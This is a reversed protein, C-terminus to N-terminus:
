GLRVSVARWREGDHEFRAALARVGGDLLVTVAVEACGARPHCLRIRGFRAPTRVHRRQAAVRWYRLVAPDAHRALHAPPRRGDLVECAIRLVGTIAARAGPEEDPARPTPPPRSLVARPTIPPGGARGPEPEYCLRRLVPRADAEPATGVHPPRTPSTPPSSM